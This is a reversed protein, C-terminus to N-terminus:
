SPYAGVGGGEASTTSTKKKKRKGHRFKNICFGAQLSLFLMLSFLHCNRFWNITKVFKCVKLFNEFTIEETREQKIFYTLQEVLHPPIIQDVVFGKYPDHYAIILKFAPDEIFKKIMEEHDETWEEENLNAVSARNKIM